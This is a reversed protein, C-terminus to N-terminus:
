DLRDRVNRRMNALMAALHHTIELLEDVGEDDIFELMNAAELQTEIESVSGKASSLFQRRDAATRRENGEAICSPIRVAARRLQATLEFREERPFRSTHRYIAVILDMGRQWAEIRRFSQTGHKRKKMSCCALQMQFAMMMSARECANSRGEGKEKRGEGRVGAATAGRSRGAM